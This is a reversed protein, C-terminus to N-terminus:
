SSGQPPLTAELMGRLEGLSYPKNLVARFGKKVYEAESGVLTGSCVLAKVSPDLKRLEQLTQEGGWGAAVMLDLIVADFPRGAARAERYAQVAEQGEASALVEYGCIALQRHMTERVLRDDDM